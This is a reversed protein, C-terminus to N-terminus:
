VAMLEPTRAIINADFWSLEENLLGKSELEETSFGGLLLNKLINMKKWDISEKAYVTYDINYRMGDLIEDMQFENFSNHNIFFDVCDINCLLGEFIVELQPRTFIELREPNEVEYIKCMKEIYKRSESFKNNDM